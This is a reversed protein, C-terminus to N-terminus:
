RIYLVVSLCLQQICRDGDTISQLDTWSAFSKPSPNFCKLHWKSVNIMSIHVRREVIADTSTSKKCVSIYPFPASIGRFHCLDSESICRNVMSVRHKLATRSYTLLCKDRRLSGLRSRNGRTIARDFEELIACRYTDSKEWKHQWQKIKSWM